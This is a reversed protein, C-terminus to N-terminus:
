ERIKREEKTHCSKCLPILNNLEHEQIERYPIKHHIDLRGEKGCHLCKFEFRILVQKRILQWEHGRRRSIEGGKWRPHNERSIDSRKKGLWYITPNRLKARRMKQRAIESQKKGKMPPKYGKKSRHNLSMSERTEQSHKYGKKRGM